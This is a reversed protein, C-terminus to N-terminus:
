KGIAAMARQTKSATSFVCKVGNKELLDSLIKKAGELNNFEFEIEYDVKGSYSNRDISLLGGEYEVDVRETSLSTLIKLQTVDFDLMTLFRKIDCKPFEGFDRFACFENMAIPVNKELLGQSLPTKVTLEYQGAKERIRLAVGAAALARDDTDIYHNTQVYRPADSFLKVLTRYDEQSLLAKAEIEIANSM